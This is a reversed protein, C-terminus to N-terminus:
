PSTEDDSDNEDDSEDDSDDPTYEEEDDDDQRTSTGTSTRRDVEAWENPYQDRGMGISELDNETDGSDLQELIDNVVNMQVDTQNSAMKSAMKERAM